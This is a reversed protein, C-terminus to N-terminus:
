RKLTLACMVPVHDFYRVGSVPELRGIGASECTGEFADSIVHDINLFGQYTPEAEDTIDTVYAFPAQSGREVIYVASDDFSASRRPDTNLDGLIVNMTGNAAPEGDLDEFVQAFQRQRCVQDDPEIGSSGHLNVVTLAEGNFADVVARGVRAGNGCGEVTAGDLHDLCLDNDCGRIEGFDLRVAICKDPKEPHCAVQYGVGLILQAVTPDGNQWGDCVFGSRAEVPVDPCAGSWFIEQFAVIAPQQEEFFRMTDDVVDQWALGDGYWLDSVAAQESTYGDEPDSDHALGQTTGTNFSM